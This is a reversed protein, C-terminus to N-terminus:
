SFHWQWFLLNEIGKLWFHTFKFQTDEPKTPHIYLEQLKIVGTKAEWGNAIEMKTPFLHLLAKETIKFQTGQTTTM